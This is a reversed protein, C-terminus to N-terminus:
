LFLSPIVKQLTSELYITWQFVFFLFKLYISKSVLKDSHVYGQDRDQGRRQSPFPWSEWSLARWERIHVQVVELSSESMEERDRVTLVCM